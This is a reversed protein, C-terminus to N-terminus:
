TTKYWSAQTSYMNSYIGGISILEEHTGMEEIKGSNIVVIRDANKAWGLRHSIFIATKNKCIDISNNFVEAETNADISATPEDFILLESDSFIARCIALKQWQGGSLERGGELIRGLPVDLSGLEEYLNYCNCKKMSELIRTDNNIEDVNGLGINERLTLEFKIYNQFVVSIKGIINTSGNWTISGSDPSYLGLLLKILTSKGAGNAGILAIKENKNITLNINSLIKHNSNKYSFDVNSLKVPSLKIDVNNHDKCMNGSKDKYFIDDKCIEIESNKYIQGEKFIPDGEQVDRKMNLLENFDCLRSCNIYLKSLPWTLSLIKSSSQLLALFLTAILGITINQSIYINSVLQVLVIFIALTQITTVIFGVKIEIRRANMRKSHQKKITKKWLNMFYNTSNYIRMERISNLKTLATSLYDGMRGEFTLERNLRRVKLEINMKITLNLIIMAIVVFSISYLGTSSSLLVISVLSSGINIASILNFFINILDDGVVTKARQLKNCFEADDYNSYEISNVVEIIENQFLLSINEKLRNGFVKVILTSMAQVISIFSILSVPRLILMLVNILEKRQISYAAIDIINAQASYIFVSLMGSILPLVFTLLFMIPMEKFVRWLLILLNYMYGKKNIMNAGGKNQIYLLKLM